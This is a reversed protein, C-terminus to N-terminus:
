NKEYIWCRRINGMAGWPLGHSFRKKFGECFSLKALQRKQPTNLTPGLRAGISGNRCFILRRLFRDLDDLDSFDNIHRYNYYIGGCLEGNKGSRLTHNDTLFRIRQRLLPFDPTAAHNIFAHAIRSKVKKVKSPAIRVSVKRWEKEKKLYQRCGFHYGLFEFSRETSNAACKDHHCEIITHKDPNLILGIADLASKVDEEAEVVPAHTFVIIDDVYRGYFYVHKLSRIERDLDRVYLEALTASVGLGRPVGAISVFQPSEFLKRLMARSAYSVISDRDIWALVKCRDISEYFSRIDHRLVNFSCGEMLLSKVQHVIDDRNAQKVKYIARINRDLKRLALMTTSDPASYVTKGRMNKEQFTPFTFDPDNIRDSIRAMVVNRDQGPRWMRFRAVDEREVLRMLCSPSFAQDLM